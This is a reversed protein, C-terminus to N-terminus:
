SGPGFDVLQQPQRHKLFRKPGAISSSANPAPTAHQNCDKTDKNSGNGVSDTAAIAEFL